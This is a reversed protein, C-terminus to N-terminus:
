RRPNIETTDIEEDEIETPDIEEGAKENEEKMGGKKVKEDGGDREVMKGADNDEDKRKKLHIAKLNPGFPENTM